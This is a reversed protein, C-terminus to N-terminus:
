GFLKETVSVQNNEVTFIKEDGYQLHVGDQKAAEAMENKRREFEQDKEQARNKYERVLTNLQAEAYVEDEIEEPNPSWPCWMGVQGVFVHFKPDSKILFEGRKRAEDLTDYAGRVKIGRVSTRFQNQSDYEKTIEDQHDKVFNEYTEQIADADFIHRFEHLFLGVKDKQEQTECKLALEDFATRASRAYSKLFRSVSFAKKDEIVDEPSVFSLCVYNQGRIPPDQELHDEKSCAIPEM